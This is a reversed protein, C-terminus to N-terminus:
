LFLSLELIVCGLLIIITSIDMCRRLYIICFKGSLTSQRAVLPNAHTDGSFCKHGTIKVIITYVIYKISLFRPLHKVFQNWKNNEYMWQNIVNYFVVVVFYSKHNYYCHILRSISIFGICNTQSLILYTVNDTKIQSRFTRHDDVFLTIRIQNDYRWDIHFHTPHIKQSGWIYVVLWIIKRLLIACIYHHIM